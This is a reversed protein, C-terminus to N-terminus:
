HNIFQITTVAGRGPGESSIRINGSHSEIIARCNYLGLGTGSSKTTFGREFFRAAQEPEFGVGNDEVELVLWGQLVYGRIQIRKDSIDNTFAEHSNKLMNLMVQMLRTRDGNIVPLTGPVDVYVQVGHKDLADHLMALSDNVLQFLAVPRRERLEQGVVYQRQINLVEQIHNIINYQEKVARSVMEHEEKRALIVGQLLTNVARAKEEGLAGEMATQQAEFFQVLQQLTATNDKDLWSRIRNLYAGFGVVANGIDHLVGSAIELKGQEVAKDTLMQQMVKEREQKETVDEFSIVTCDKYIRTVIYNFYRVGYGPMTFCYVESVLVPGSEEKYLQLRELVTPAMKELLPFFNDDYLQFYQRIPRLIEGGAINVHIITGQDDLEVIGLPAYEIIATLKKEIPSLDNQM